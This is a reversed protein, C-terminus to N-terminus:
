TQIAPNYEEARKGWTAAVAEKATRVTPPVRLWYDKYTGDPTPTGDVVKVMVLDEDGPITKRYLTGFDDTHVPTVGSELLYRSPGFQDMLVRRLEANREAEIEEVTISEPQMVVRGPVRVGHVAYVGWGDPYELAMGDMCHLRFEADRALKCPRESLVVAHTFPWWWGFSQSVRMLPLLAETEETLGIRRFFDYYALWEADHQGYCANEGWRSQWGSPALPATNKDLIAQWEARAQALAEPSSATRLPHRKFEPLKGAEIHQRIQDWAQQEVAARRPSRPKGDGEESPTGGSALTALSDLIAQMYAGAMPSDAWVILHPPKLDAQKYADVVAAEAAPRDAPETSLGVALWEDRVVPLLARQDDSLEKIM